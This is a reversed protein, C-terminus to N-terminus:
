GRSYLLDKAALLAQDATAMLAEGDLSESTAVGFSVGIGGEGVRAGRVAEALRRAAIEAEEACTGPM